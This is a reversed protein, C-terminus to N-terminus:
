PIERSHSIRLISNIGMTNTFLDKVNYMGIRIRCHRIKADTAIIKTPVGEKPNVPQAYIM